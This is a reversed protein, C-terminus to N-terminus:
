EFKEVSELLFQGRDTRLVPPNGLVIEQLRVEPHAGAIHEVLGNLLQGAPLIFDCFPCRTGVARPELQALRVLALAKERLWALVAQWDGEALPRRPRRELLAYPCAEVYLEARGNDNWEWGLAGVYERPHPLGGRTIEVGWCAPKDDPSCWINIVGSRADYHGGRELDFAHGTALLRLLFDRDATINLLERRM